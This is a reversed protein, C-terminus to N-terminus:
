ENGIVENKVLDSYSERKRIIRFRSGSVLVEAARRRSNYNSSMSFGYAGASMVAIVDNQKLFAPLRRDKALFDGSECIPGVVDATRFTMKKRKIAPVIEHYAGYLAPRMLDNMAADVIIFRKVATDKVYVVKTALIGANGVIFRGPELILKLGRNKVLPIVARAYEQATQPQEKKYIIGLGGGINLHTINAGHANLREILKVAKKVAQIFPAVREIQSGIHVHICCIDLNKFRRRLNLFINETTKLDIGFKNQKKATTIYHHTHAEVDPNIRVAVRQKKRLRGAVDNIMELEPLSEVNFFLIGAKIGAEIEEPTKGVSAYVIKQEPAKIKKARYLEGGSVIDLGAGEQVLLRCLSLNSNSKMSFCILPEIEAFTQELKRYHDLLAKRSYVFVPTGVKRAIEEVSVNECLLRNNKFIFDHM